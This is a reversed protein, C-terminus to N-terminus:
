CSWSQSEHERPFSSSFSLLLILPRARHAKSEIGSEKIFPEMLPRVSEVEKNPRTKCHDYRIHIGRRGYTLEYKINGNSDASKKEM